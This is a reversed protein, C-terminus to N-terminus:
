DDMMIDTFDGAYFEMGALDAKCFDARFRRQILEEAALELRLEQKL